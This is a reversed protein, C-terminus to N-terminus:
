QNCKHCTFLYTGRQRNVKNNREPCKKAYHGLKKCNLCLVKTTDNKRKPRELALLDRVENEEYEVITTPFREQKKSCNRPLHGKEGCIRCAPLTIEDDDRPEKSGLNNQPLSNNTSVMIQSMM